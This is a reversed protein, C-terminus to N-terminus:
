AKPVSINVMWDVSYKDTLMGFLDGWAEKKLPFQPTIDASLGDFVKRLEAENEGSLSITIKKAEPSAKATDSGMINVLGGKLEAHMLKDAPMADSMGLEGYTNVVLEGGFIGKYFEMAERANGQFFIYPNCKIDSM